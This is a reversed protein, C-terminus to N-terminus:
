AITWGKNTAIEMEELSVRAKANPHLTLTPSTDVTPLANFINIVSDHTLNKCPSMSFSVACTKGTFNINELLTSNNFMNTATKVNSFDGLTLNKLYNCSAFAYTLSQCNSLNGVIVTHVNAVQFLLYNGNTVNNLNGIEFYKLATCGRAFQSAMTANIVNGIKISEINACNLFSNQLSTCLPLDGLVISKVTSTGNFQFFSLGYVFNYENIYDNNYISEAYINSDSSIEYDMNSDSTIDYDM